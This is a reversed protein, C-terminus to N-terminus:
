HISVNALLAAKFTATNFATLVSRPDVPCGPCPVLQCTFASEYGAILGPVNVTLALHTQGPSLTFALASLDDQPTRLTFVFGTM